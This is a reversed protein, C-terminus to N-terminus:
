AYYRVERGMPILVIEDATLKNDNIFQDQRNFGDKGYLETLLEFLQRDRDLTIIRTVPLNFATEELSRLSYTVVNLLKEYTEGTDVFANKKNQSDIYASYEAFSAAIQAATELVDSRSAFSGGTNGDSYDSDDETPNSAGQNTSQEAATKAVGYSLAAIM